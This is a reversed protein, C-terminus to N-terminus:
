VCFVNHAENDIKQPGENDTKLVENDSKLTGIFRNKEEVCTRSCLM